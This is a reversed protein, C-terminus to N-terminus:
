WPTLGAALDSPSANDHRHMEALMEDLVDDAVERAQTATSVRHSERALRTAWRRPIGARALDDARWAHDPDGVEAMLDHVQRRIADDNRNSM